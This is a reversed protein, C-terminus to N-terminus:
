ATSNQGHRGRSSDRLVFLSNSTLSVQTELSAADKADEIIIGSGRTRKRIRDATAFDRKKKAANRERGAQSRRTAPGSGAAYGLARLKEADNDEVVALSQRVRGFLGTRRSTARASNAKDICYEGRSGSRVSSCRGRRIGTTPFGPMLEEGGKCHAGCGEQKGASVERTEASRCFEAATRGFQRRSCAM